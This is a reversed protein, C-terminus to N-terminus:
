YCCGFATDAHVILSCLTQLYLGLSCFLLNVTLIRHSQIRLHEAPGDVNQVILEQVRFVHLIVRVIGRVFNFKTWSKLNLYPSVQGLAV